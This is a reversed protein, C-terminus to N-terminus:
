AYYGASGYGLGLNWLCWESDGRGCGLRSKNWIHLSPWVMVGSSVETGQDVHLSM